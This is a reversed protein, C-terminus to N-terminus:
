TGLSAVNDEGSNTGGSKLGVNRGQASRNIPFCSWGSAALRVCDQFQM